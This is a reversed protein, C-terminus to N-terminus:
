LTCYLLVHLTCNVHIYLVTYIYTPQAAQPLPPPLPASFITENINLILLEKELVSELRVITYTGREEKRYTYQITHVTYVSVYVTTYEYREESSPKCCNKLTAAARCRIRPNDNM